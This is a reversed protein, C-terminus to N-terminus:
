LACYEEQHSQENGTRTQCEHNINHKSTGPDAAAVNSGQTQSESPCVNDFRISMPHSFIMHPDYLAKIRVLRDSNELYYHEHHHRNEFDKPYVRSVHNSYGGSSRLPEMAPLVTYHWALVKERDEELQWFNGVSFILGSHRHPYAMATPAIDTLAGGYGSVTLSVHGNLIDPTPIQLAEWIKDIVLSNGIDDDNNDGSTLIRKSFGSHTIWRKHVCEHARTVLEFVESVGSWLASAELWSLYRVTDQLQIPKLDTINLVRLISDPDLHDAQNLAEPNITGKIGLWWNDGAVQEYVLVALIDRSDIFTEVVRWLKQFLTRDRKQDFRFEYTIVHRMPISRFHLKTVIGFQSHGAGRIAWFLDSNQTESVRLIRGNSDVLEAGLVFDIGLGDSHALPGMAGGVIQGGISPGMEFGTAVYRDYKAINVLVKGIRSGAGVIFELANDDLAQFQEMRELNVVVANDQVGLAMGSHGGGRAVVKLGAARACQIAKVVDETTVANVVARPLPSFDQNVHLSAVEAHSTPFFADFQEGQRHQLLCESLNGPLSQWPHSSYAVFFLSEKEQDEKKTNNNDDDYSDIVTLKTVGELLGEDVLSAVCPEQGTPVKGCIVIMTEGEKEKGTISSEASSPVAHGRHGCVTSTWQVGKTELIQHITQHNVMKKTNNNNNHDNDNLVTLQLMRITNPAQPSSMIIRKSPTMKNNPRVATDDYLETGLIKEACFSLSQM